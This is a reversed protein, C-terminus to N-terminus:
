KRLGTILMTALRDVGDKIEEESLKLSVPPSFAYFASHFTQATDKANCPRFEESKIGEEIVAALLETELTQYKTFLAMHRDDALASTVIEYGHTTEKFHEHYSLSRTLMIARLKESPSKGSRAVEDQEEMISSKCEKACSYCIDEKSKFFNYISGVSIDAERAIDAITTKQYGYHFILKKAAELIRERKEDDKEKM